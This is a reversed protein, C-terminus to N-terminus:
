LLMLLALTFHCSDSYGSGFAMGITYRFKVHGMSIIVNIFNTLKYFQTPQKTKIKKKKNTKNQKVDTETCYMSDSILIERSDCVLVM